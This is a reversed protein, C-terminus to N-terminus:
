AIRPSVISEIRRIVDDIFANDMDMKNVFIVTPVQNEELLRFITRTHPQVGDTGSILLIAYDLARKLLEERTKDKCYERYFCESKYYYLRFDEFELDKSFSLVDDKNGDEIRSLYVLFKGFDSPISIFSLM